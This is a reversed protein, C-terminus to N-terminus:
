RPPPTLREVIQRVIKSEATRLRQSVASKSLDFEACLEDLSAQRPTSYYGLEVARILTERQKATLDGADFTVVPDDDARVDHVTLDGDITAIAKLASSIADSDSPVRVTVLYNSREDSPQSEGM